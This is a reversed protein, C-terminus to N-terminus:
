SNYRFSKNKGYKRRRHKRKIKNKLLIILLVGFLIIGGWLVPHYYNIDSNLFVTSEYLINDDQSITLTGLKTGKETGKKIEEVGSYKIELDDSSGNELFLTINEPGTIQYEKEKAGKVPLTKIVDNTTLVSQYSYNTNYYDYITLTDLVASYNEDTTSNIVVLLYEVGNLTTISALCRGAGKTFGSKSGAIKNIDLFDQYPYLTSELKIGNTTIYEKTTFIEKFLENKLAYKLLIAVDKATSYNNEEDKGIPNSFSTNKLGISEAKANMALIFEEDGLTNNVIANVAEAGSPLLIGYLLDLYTVQNGIEFGAKSYGNTGIFDNATITVHDNYNDINEIAILATMIKTLSAINTKEESNQEYLITDDNLNYLVVNKGTINFNSAFVLTPFCLLPIIVIYLLCKKIM